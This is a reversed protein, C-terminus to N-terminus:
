CNTSQNKGLEFYTTADDSKIKLCQELATIAKDYNQIGKQLLSEYFYDQFKDTDPKIQEPETQAMLMAPNCLLVLFLFVLVSKNM